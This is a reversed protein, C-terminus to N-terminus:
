AEVVGLLGDHCYTQLKHAASPRLLCLTSRDTILVHSPILIVFYFHISCDILKILKVHIQCLWLACGLLSLPLCFLYAYFNTVHGGDRWDKKEKFPCGFTDQM